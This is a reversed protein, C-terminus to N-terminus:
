LAPCLPSLTCELIWARLSITQTFNLLKMEKSGTKEDKFYTHKLLNNNLNFMVNIFRRISLIYIFNM